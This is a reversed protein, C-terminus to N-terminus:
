AAAASRRMVAVPYLLLLAAIAFSAAYGLMQVEFGIGQDILFGSLGPGIASGLVMLAAASAKIAGLHRTGFFEAWCANLLTAQGGGAMGMLIVAIATWILSPAYWHLIFALVLPLLYVPLLRVAGLRDVAWGFFITSALLTATGLPFVSVLALHSWGKIEAFHVQHFWFATGFGSFSMVAPAMAWFLPTRLAESRTWHRGWLGTSQETAAVSQPTRELRLLWLLVPAMALCFLACGVWILHWDIRTKIWVMILPLAAEGLMFGMAAVALARGRAAIFWRAMAVTAVHSTMGQGFFRLLFVIVPLAAAWPNVAMLICSLGLLLVVTIGLQRVRLRDALGGAFVMVVASAGTGIMYILGWDGNSLGYDARIEGGFVSIFFTQGFSSLFSLLAGTALFPANDRIFSFYGTKSQM